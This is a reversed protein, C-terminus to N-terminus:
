EEKKPKKCMCDHRCQVATDGTDPDTYFMQVRDHKVDGVTWLVEAGSGENRESM